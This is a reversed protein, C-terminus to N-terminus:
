IIWDSLWFCCPSSLIVSVVPFVITFTTGGTASAAFFIVFVTEFAVSFETLFTDDAESDHIFFILHITKAPQEVIIIKDTKINMM